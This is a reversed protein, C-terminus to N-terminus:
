RVDHRNRIDVLDRFKNVAFKQPNFYRGIEFHLRRVWKDTSKKRLFNEFRPDYYKEQYHFVSHRFGELLYTNRSRLLRNIRSDNIKLRRIGEVVVYLMGYWVSRYISMHLWDLDNRLRETFVPQGM